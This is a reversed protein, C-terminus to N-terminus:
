ISAQGSVITVPASYGMTWTAVLGKCADLAQIHDPLVETVSCVTGATLAGPQSVTQNGPVAVPTDVALSGASALCHTTTSFTPPIPVPGGTDNVVIKQVNLSGPPTCQMTVNDLQPGAMGTMASAFALTTTPAASTFTFSHQQWKGDNPIVGAITHTWSAPSTAVNNVFTQLTASALQLHRSMQFTVTCAWGATSAMTQEIRGQTNGNLDVCHTGVFQCRTQAPATGVDVNGATVKWGTAGSLYGSVTTYPASQTAPEFDGNLLPAVQAAATGALLMACAFTVCSARTLLASVVSLRASSASKPLGCM